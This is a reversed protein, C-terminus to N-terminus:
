EVDVWDLTRHVAKQWGAYGEARQEDSWQPSWRRGEQWNARLDDAGEWFGVALGAAYAAGLATTEAVVPKVVDVGLVDAQIQMCLDNATIGGDVKLVELPVGSDAAMADVVDRSQYCIAELTARAVHANTNFRSLGVIAGRADSRWYPAFLGSFAPVFYVGGNDDVQRALSESQSAGSIIGLQDRLWQVASGTVAISGELAYVPKSDGFQYCVTTLLGNDSRVIKEGTNLLLFNGTGYTNKAEGVDLCVQGVMAAQQDGLIGTIPIEGDAPGTEVTVGYPQPSSSPRIEPLMQRPIDFFGLLEDDWDLTELNMLMTRSANTVDTVHVGGRHGGTLNWLVWTDTTGFLADGNAADARLGDVNELLWQLKGGSFYTAPPLGAKRRIVDGRGDRDLASAIRDTRTDQWVIANYYPRGTHRNWVLSTERQNTIGLAALDTTALKTANLATALVSGTREWIEVPNHEVWGAKPLIQEHELQHRGVEAGDHDFIMCRTSTTGQDIAAVFDAM